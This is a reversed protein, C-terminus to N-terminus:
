LIDSIISLHLILFTVLIMEFTCNAVWNQQTESDSIWTARENSRNLMSRVEEDCVIYNEVEKQL